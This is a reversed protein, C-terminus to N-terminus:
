QNASYGLSRKIASIVANETGDHSEVQINKHTHESSLKIVVSPYFAVGCLWWTVSLLKERTICIRM